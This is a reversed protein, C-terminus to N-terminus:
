GKREPTYAQFESSAVLQGDDALVEWKVRCPLGLRDALQRALALREENSDSQDIAGRVTMVAVDDTYHVSGNLDPEMEIAKFLAAADDAGDTGIARFRIQIAATLINETM